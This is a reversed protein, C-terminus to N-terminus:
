APVRAAHLANARLKFQMLPLGPPQGAHQYGDERRKKRSCHTLLECRLFRSGGILGAPVVDISIQACSGPGGQEPYLEGPTRHSVHLVQLGANDCSQHAMMNPQFAVAVKAGRTTRCRLVHDFLGGPWTTSNRTGIPSRDHECFDPTGQDLPINTSSKCATNFEQPRQWARFM